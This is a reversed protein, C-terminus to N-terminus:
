FCLKRFGAISRYDPGHIRSYTCYVSRYDLHVPCHVGRFGEISRFDIHTGRFELISRNDNSREPLM